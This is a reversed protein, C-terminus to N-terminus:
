EAMVVVTTSRTTALSEADVSEFVVVYLGPQVVNGQQDKGDWVVAGQGGTFVNNLLECVTSGNPRIVWCWSIAQRFPQQWSITCPHRTHSPNSSFPSPNAMVINDFLVQHFASNVAGITNGASSTSSTWSQASVSPLLTSRKELSIGQTVELIPTHWSEDYRLSDVTYGSPNKLVFEDTTTNWDVIPTTKGVRAYHGKAVVTDHLRAQTLADCVYWGAFSRLSDYCWLEVLDPGERPDFLIENVQITQPLPPLYHLEQKVNNRLRDDTIDVLARVVVPETSSEYPAVLWYVFQEKPLLAPVEKSFYHNDIQVELVTASVVESGLNEVTVGLQNGSTQFGMIAIDVPVVVWSNLMGCSASDASRCPKWLATYTPVDHAALLTDAMRHSGSRELSLGKRMTGGQYRCSDVVQMAPNRVVVVDASNNLSPLSCEVLTVDPPIMRAERLGATDRTLVVYGYAPWRFRPIEVCTAADCVSYGIAMASAKPWFLEVWEPEGAVPIAHVETLIQANAQYLLTCLVVVRIAMNAMGYLFSPQM